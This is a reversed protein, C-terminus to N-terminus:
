LGLSELKQAGWKDSAIKKGVIFIDEV